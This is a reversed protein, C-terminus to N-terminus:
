VDVRRKAIQDVVRLASKVGDEHFGWGWYAGCYYTNNHGSIDSWRKQTQLTKETYVPHAYHRELFVKQPDVRDASNLSVILEVPADLNQLTNMHYSVTCKNRLSPGIHVNWSAWAAPNPPLISEDAHLQMHNDQYEINGLLVAEDTTPDGLINLAQDSHCALIIADFQHEAEHINFSVGNTNRQINNVPSSTHVKGKFRESFQKIYQNSGGKVVRWQPRAGLSLMKHNAMFSVLYRIPMNMLSTSPGSWLACAMPILHDNVFIDSYRYQKLYDGVTLQNDDKLVKPAQRYFRVLESLMRYFSLNVLNKRQCFLTNLSAANYELGSQENFVSFSMETDSAEVDLASLLRCFNPYNYDNFVIFGTDVSWTKGLIDVDHTDTHGGLYDNAEFLEVEHQQSLYWAATIGSIGAGIVAIRM